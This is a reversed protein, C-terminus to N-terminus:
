LVLLLCVIVWFYINFFFFFSKNSTSFLLLEEELSANGDNISVWTEAVKTVKGDSFEVVTFAHTSSGSSPYRVRPVIAANLYMVGDGDVALM